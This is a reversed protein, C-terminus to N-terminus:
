RNFESEPPAMYLRDLSERKRRDPLDFFVGYAPGYQPRMARIFLYYVGGFHQEYRYDPIRQSLYRHLAISYLLYQLDYRRDDM